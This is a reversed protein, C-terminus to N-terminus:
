MFPDYDLRDEHAYPGREVPLQRFLERTFARLEAEKRIRDAQEAAEKVFRAAKKAARRARFREILAKM